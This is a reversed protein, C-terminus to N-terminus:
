TEGRVHTAHRLLDLKKEYASRMLDNLAANNPDERLAARAEALAADIVRLNEEVLRVTEPALQSRQAALLQELETTADRYHQEVAATGPRSSVVAVNEPGANRRAVTSPQSTGQVLLTSLAATAAILLVAAAALPYRMSRLSRDAFAFGGAHPAASVAVAADIRANIGTLLDRAPLVEHDVDQLDTILDRMAAVEAQCVACIILHQEVEAREERCLLDDVYDQIRDERLHNSM